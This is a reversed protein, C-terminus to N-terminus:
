LENHENLCLQNTSVSLTVPFCFFFMSRIRLMIKMKEFKGGIKAQKKHILPYMERRLGEISCKCDTYLCTIFSKYCM